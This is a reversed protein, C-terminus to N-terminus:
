IYLVRMLDRLDNDIGKIFVRQKLENYVVDMQEQTLSIMEGKGDHSAFIINGYVIDVVETNNVVVAIEPNLGDIFKGDENIIMDINESCLTKSLMPAEIYGGVIDHLTDLDNDIEKRELKGNSLILVKM